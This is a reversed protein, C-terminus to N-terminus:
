RAPTSFTRRRDELDIEAAKRALFADVSTPVWAFQGFPDVRRAIGESDGTNTLAVMLEEQRDRSLKKVESIIKEVASSM